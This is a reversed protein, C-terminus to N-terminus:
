MKYLIIALFGNYKLICIKLYGFLRPLMLSVYKLFCLIIQLVNPKSFCNDIVIIIRIAVKHQTTRYIM